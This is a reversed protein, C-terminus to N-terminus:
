LRTRIDQVRLLFDALEDDKALRASRAVPGCGEAGALLAYLVTHAETHAGGHADNLSVKGDHTM